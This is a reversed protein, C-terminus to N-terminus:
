SKDTATVNFVMGNAIHVSDNVQMSGKPNEAPGNRYTVTLLVNDGEPVPDFALMVVNRFTLVQRTEVRHRGNVAIQIRGEGPTTQEAM